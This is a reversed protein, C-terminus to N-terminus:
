KHIEWNADAKKGRPRRWLLVLLGCVIVVSILAWVFNLWRLNRQENSVNKRDLSEKAADSRAAQIGKTELLHWRNAFLAADSALGNYDPPESIPASAPNPKAVLVLQPKQGAERAALSIALTGTAQIQPIRLQGSRDTWLDQDLKLPGDIPPTDQLRVCRTAECTASDVVRWPRLAGIMPPPNLAFPYLAAAVASLKELDVSSVHLAPMGAARSEEFFGSIGRLPQIQRPALLTTEPSVTAWLSDQETQACNDKNNPIITAAVDFVWEDAAWLDRPIRIEARGASWNAFSYTAVPRGNIRVTLSSQHPNLAASGSVNAHLHLMPWDKLTWSVPRRWVFRLTHTGEGRAIWGNPQGSEGLQWVSPPAPNGPKSIPASTDAGSPAQAAGTCLDTDCLGRARDNALLVLAERLAANDRGVVVLARRGETMFAFRSFPASKLRLAVPHDAPYQDLLSLRLQGAVGNSLPIEPVHGWSRLLHDADLFAGIGENDLSGEFQVHVANRGESQRIWAAPFDKISAARDGNGKQEWTVASDKLVKLWAEDRNHAPCSDDETRLSTRIAIVHHGGTLDGLAVTFQRPSPRSLRWSQRIEGDVWVSISSQRLNLLPSASWKVALKPESKRESRPDVFVNFNAEAQLGVLQTDVRALPAEIRAALSHGGFFLLVCASVVAIIQRFM